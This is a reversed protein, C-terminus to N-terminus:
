DDRREYDVNTITAVDSSDRLRMMELDVPCRSVGVAMDVVRLVAMARIAMMTTAVMDGVRAAVVVAMPTTMLEKGVTDAAPIKATPTTEEEMGVPEAVVVTPTTVRQRKATDAAPKEVTLTVLTMEGMVVLRAVVVTSTEAEVVQLTRSKAHMPTAETVAVQPREAPAMSMMTEAIQNGDMHVPEMDVVVPKAVQVMSTMTEAAQLMDPNEDSVTALHANVAMSMATAANEALNTELAPTSIGINRRTLIMVTMMMPSKRTAMNRRRRKRRRKVSRKNKTNMMPTTMMQNTRRKTPPVVLIAELAMADSPGVHSPASSLSLPLSVSV